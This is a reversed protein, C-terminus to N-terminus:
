VERVERYTRLLQLVRRDHQPASIRRFSAQASDPSAAYVLTGKFLSRTLIPHIHATM